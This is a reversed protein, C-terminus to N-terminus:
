QGYPPKVEELPHEAVMERLFREWAQEWHRRVDKFEAPSMCAHELSWEILQKWGYISMDAKGVM